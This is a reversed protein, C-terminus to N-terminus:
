EKEEKEKDKSSTNSIHTKIEKYLEYPANVNAFVFSGINATGNIPSAMSGFNITGTNKKLLKDLLTVNVVSAGIMKLDLSKYDVGFIGKRIIIRKNTYGYYTNKYSIHLLPWQILLNVALPLVICLLILVWVVTTQNGLEIVEPDELMEILVGVFACVFIFLIWVSSIIISKAYMVSKQPKILKLVKEDDDLIPKFCEDM